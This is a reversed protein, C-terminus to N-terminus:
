PHQNTVKILFELMLLVGFGLPSVGTEVLSVGDEDSNGKSVDIILVAPCGVADPIGDSTLNQQSDSYITAPKWVMDAGLLFAAGGFLPVFVLGEALGVERDEGFLDEVLM